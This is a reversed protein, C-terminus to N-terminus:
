ELELAQTKSIWEAHELYHRARIANLRAFEDEAPQRESWALSQRMAARVADDSVPAFFDSWPRGARLPASREQAMAADLVFWFSPEDPHEEGGGFNLEFEPPQRGEVYVVLELGRGPPELTALARVLPARRDGLPGDVVVVVDLDSRVPDFGGVAASGLAYAELVDAHEDIAALVGDLYRTVVDPLEAVVTM